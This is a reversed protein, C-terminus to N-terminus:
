CIRHAKESKKLQGADKAADPVRKDKADRDSCSEPKRGERQGKVRWM